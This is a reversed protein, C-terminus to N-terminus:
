YQIPITPKPSQLKLLWTLKKRTIKLKKWIWRRSVTCKYQQSRKNSQHSSRMTPYSRAHSACSSADALQTQAAV